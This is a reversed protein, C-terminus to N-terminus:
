YRHRHHSAAGVLAGGLLAGTLLGVGLGVPGYENDAQGELRTKYHYEVASIFRKISRTDSPRNNIRDLAERLIYANCYGKVKNKCVLPFNTDFYAETYDFTYGSPILLDVLKLMQAVHENNQPLMEDKPDWLEAKSQMTDVFLLVAHRITPTQVILRVINLYDRRYSINYAKIKQDNPTIEMEIPYRVVGPYNGLVLSFYRGDSGCSTSEPFNDYNAM